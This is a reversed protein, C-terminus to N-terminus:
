HAGYGFALLAMVVGAIALLGLLEPLAGDPAPQHGGSETGVLARSAVHRNHRSRLFAIMLAGAVVIGSALTFFTLWTIPNEGNM